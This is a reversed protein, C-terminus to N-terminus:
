VVADLADVIGQLMVGLGTKYAGLAGVLAVSFLGILLSYEVLAQGAESMGDTVKHSRFYDARDLVGSMEVAKLGAQREKPACFPGCM